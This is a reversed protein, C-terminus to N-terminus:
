GGNESRRGTSQDNKTFYQAITEQTVLYKVTKGNSSEIRDSKSSKAWHNRIHPRAAHCDQGLWPLNRHAHMVAVELILEHPRGPGAALADVGRVAGTAEYM